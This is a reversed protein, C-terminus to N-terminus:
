HATELRCKIETTSPSFLHATPLRIWVDLRCQKSSNLILDLLLFSIDIYELILPELLKSETRDVTKPIATM